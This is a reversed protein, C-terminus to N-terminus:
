GNSHTCSLCVTDDYGAEINLSGIIKGTKEDVQINTLSYDSGCGFRKLKCSDVDGCINQDVITFFDTYGDM